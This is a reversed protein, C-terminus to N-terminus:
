RVQPAQASIQAAQASSQSRMGSAGIIRRQASMHRRQASLQRAIDRIVAYRVAATLIGRVCLVDGRGGGGCDERRAHCPLM